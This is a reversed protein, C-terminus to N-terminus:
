SSLNKPTIYFVEEPFSLPLASWSEINARFCAAASTPFNPIPETLFENVFDTMGPNHGFIAVTEFDDDLSALISNLADAGGFYVSPDIRIASEEYGVSRAIIRATEHARLAHSSIILDFRIGQEALYKAIRETREEGLLLLPRQYDALSSIEWSSKGHRFVCFTKM